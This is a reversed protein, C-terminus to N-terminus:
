VKANEYILRLSPGEDYTTHPRPARIHELLADVAGVPLPASPTTPVATVGSYPLQIWRSKGDGIKIRGTELEQTVEGKRINRALAEWEARPRVPIDM